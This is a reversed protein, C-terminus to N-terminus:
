WVRVTTGGESTFALQNNTTQAQHNTTLPKVRRNTTLPKVKWGGGVLLWGGDGLKAM